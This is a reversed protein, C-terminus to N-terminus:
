RSDEQQEELILGIPFGSLQSKPGVKQISFM